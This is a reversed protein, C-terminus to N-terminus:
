QLYAKAFDDALSFDLDDRGLEERAKVQWFGSRYEGILQALNWRAPYMYSEHGPIIGTGEVYGHQNFSLFPYYVGIAIISGGFVPDRAVVPSAVLYKGVQMGTVQEVEPPFYDIVADLFRGTEENATAGDFRLEGEAFILGPPLALKGAMIDALRHVM